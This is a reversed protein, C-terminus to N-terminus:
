NNYKEESNDIPTNPDNQVMKAIDDKRMYIVGTKTRTYLIFEGMARTLAPQGGIRDHFSISMMRRKTSGEGYLQDFEMKLQALFQDPSWHKGEIDVIDNNRLTYPIVVFNKGNVITIFPEDRSLDDIHYLFGLEQLVKLTNPGRRLWNCNDGVGLIGTIAELADNGKKVFALEDAYDMGWQDSWEFGHAAIEHGGNAIAKV